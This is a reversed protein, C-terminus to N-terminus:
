SFINGCETKRLVVHEGFHPVEGVGAGEIYGFSFFSHYLCARLMEGLTSMRCWMLRRGVGSDRRSAVFLILAM